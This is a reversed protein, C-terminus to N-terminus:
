AVPLHCISACNRRALLGCTRHAIEVALSAVEHVFRFRWVLEIFLATRTPKIGFATSGNVITEVALADRMAPIHHREQPPLGQFFAVIYLLSQLGIGCEM